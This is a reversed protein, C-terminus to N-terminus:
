KQAVNNSSAKVMIITVGSRLNKVMLALNGDKQNILVSRKVPTTNKTFINIVSKKTSVNLKLPNVSPDKSILANVTMGIKEM